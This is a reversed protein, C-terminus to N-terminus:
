QVKIVRALRVEVRSMANTVIAMLTEPQRGPGRDLDWQSIQSPFGGVQATQSPLQKLNVGSQTAAWGALLQSFAALFDPAANDAKRIACTHYPPMEITLLYQGRATNQIWGVGPDTGLLHHLREEPMVDLRKETAFQRVAADDPFRELCIAAFMGVLEVVAPEAARAPTASLAVIAALVAGGLRSAPGHGM